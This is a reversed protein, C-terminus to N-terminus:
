PGRRKLDRRMQGLEDKIRGLVTRGRRGASRKIQEVKPERSRRQDLRKFEELVDPGVANVISEAHDLLGAATEDFGEPAPPGSTHRLEGYSWGVDALRPKFAPCNEPCSWPADPALDLDCKRVSEGNAYTRSEYFKCNTQM